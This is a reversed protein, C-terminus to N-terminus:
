RVSGAQHYTRVWQRQQRADAAWKGTPYKKLYQEYAEIAKAWEHLKELCEGRAFYAREVAANGPYYEILKQYAEVAEKFKGESQYYTGIKAAAAEASATNRYHHILKAYVAMAKEVNKLQTYYIEAARALAEAARDQVAAPVDLVKLYNEAARRRLEAIRDKQSALQMASVSPKAKPLAVVLWDLDQRNPAFQAKGRVTSPAATPQGKMAVKEGGKDAPVGGSFAAAALALIALVSIWRTPKM